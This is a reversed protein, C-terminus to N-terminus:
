IWQLIKNEELFGQVVKPLYYVLLYVDDHAHVFIANRGKHTFELLTKQSAKDSWASIWM